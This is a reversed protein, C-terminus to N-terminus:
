RRRVWGIWSLSLLILGILPVLLQLRRSNDDPTVQLQGAGAQPLGFTQLQRDQEAVLEAQGDSDSLMATWIRNPQEALVLEGPGAAAFESDIRVVGAEDTTVPVVVAADSDQAEAPVFRARPQWSEVEWLGQNGVTSIRRLGSVADLERTLRKELRTNAQVYRVGADGLADLDEGGNGSVLRSVAADLWVMNQHAPAAEADGLRPGDGSVMLYRYDSSEAGSTIVITRPAQPGTAESAVYPSVAATSSKDLLTPQELIWWGSIAIASVALLGPLVTTIAKRRRAQKLQLATIAILLAGAFVMMAGPYAQQTQASWPVPLPVVAQLTAIGLAVLVVAWAAVARRGKPLLFTAALASLVVLSGLGILPAAPGGPDLLLLQWPATAPTTLAPDILGTDFLLLSPNSLLHGSWPWLLAVVFGTMVLVRVLASGAGRMATAILGLLLLTTALVPSFAMMASLGLTVGVVTGWSSEPLGGGLESVRVMGRLVVPLLIAAVAIGLRGTSVAAVTAPLLGYALSAGIRTLGTCLGRLSIFATVASLVPALLLLIQVSLESSGFLPVSFIAVLFLYPVSATDSGLGVEHWPTTFRALTEAFGDPAPQLAGGSLVGASFWLSSSVALCVLAVPLVVSLLLNRTRTIQNRARALTRLHAPDLRSGFADEWGSGTSVQNKRVRRWSSRNVVAARAVARRSRLPPRLLAGINALFRDTASGPLVNMGALAAGITAALLLRVMVLPLRWLPAAILSLRAARRMEERHGHQQTSRRVGAHGAGRHYVVASPVVRVRAGARYVRYCFDAEAGVVDLSASFGGIREWLDRRVLMGASSVIAVEARHDFQGQDLEHPEVGTIIHGTASPMKGCERLMERHGLGRIKAGVVAADHSNADALLNSLAESDVACDDHLVWIWETVGHAQESQTAPSEAASDEAGSKASGERLDIQPERLDIVAPGAAEAVVHNVAAGFSLEDAEVVLDAAGALLQASGDSSGTDVGLIRDPRRGSARLSDILQPLWRGGNHSVIVATVHDEATPRAVSRRTQTRPRFFDTTSESMTEESFLQYRAVM